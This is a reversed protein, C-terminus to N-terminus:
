LADERAKILDGYASRLGNCLGGGGFYLGESKTITKSLCLLWEISSVRWQQLLSDIRRNM